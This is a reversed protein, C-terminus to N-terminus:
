ELIDNLQAASIEFLWRKKENKKKKKKKRQEALFSGVTETADRM